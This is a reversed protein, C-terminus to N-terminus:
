SNHRRAFADVFQPEEIHDVILAIIVILLPHALAPAASLCPCVIDGHVSNRIHLQLHFWFAVIESHLQVFVHTCIM